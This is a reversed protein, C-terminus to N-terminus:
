TKVDCTYMRVQFCHFCVQRIISLGLRTKKAASRTLPTSRKPLDQEERRPKRLSARCTKLNSLLLITGSNSCIKNHLIENRKRYEMSVFMCKSLNAFCFIIFLSCFPCWGLVSFKPGEKWKKWAYAPSLVLLPGSAIPRHFYCKPWCVNPFVPWRPRYFNM